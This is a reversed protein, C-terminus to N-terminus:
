CGAEATRSEDGGPVPRSYAPARHWMVTGHGGLVKGLQGADLQARIAQITANYRNQLCVGIKVQPQEAAATIIKDAEDM